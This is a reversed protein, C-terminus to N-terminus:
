DISECQEQSPKGIDCTRGTFGIPCSCHFTGTSEDFICSGGNQCPNPVCADGITSMSDNPLYIFIIAHGVYRAHLGRIDLDVNVLLVLYDKRNAHVAM